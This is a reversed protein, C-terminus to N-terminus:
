EETVTLVATSMDLSNVYLLVKFYQAEYQLNAHVRPIIINGWFAINGRM